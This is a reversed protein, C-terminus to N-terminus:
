IRKRDEEEEEEKRERGRSGRRKREKKEKRKGRWRKRGGRDRRKRGWRYICVWLLPASLRLSIHCSSTQPPLPLFSTLRVSPCNKCLATQDAPATPNKDKMMMKCGSCGDSSVDGSPEDPAGLLQLM